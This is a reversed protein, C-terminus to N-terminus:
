HAVACPRAKELKTIIITIIDRSAGTGRTPQESRPAPKISPKDSQYKGSRGSCGGGVRDASSNWEDPGILLQSLSDASLGNATTHLHFLLTLSLRRALQWDDIISPVIKVENENEERKKRTEPKM